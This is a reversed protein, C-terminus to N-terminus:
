WPCLKKSKSHAEIDTTAENRNTDMPPLEPPYNPVVSDGDGVYRQKITFNGKRSPVNPSNTLSSNVSLTKAPSVSNFHALKQHHNSFNTTAYEPTCLSNASLFFM